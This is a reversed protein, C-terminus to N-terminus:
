KPSLDILNGCLPCPSTERQRDDEELTLEGNCHPCRIEDCAVQEVPLRAERIMGSFFDFLGVLIAGYFLVYTGHGKTSVFSILTLSLGIACIVLGRKKQYAYHRRAKETHDRQLLSHDVASDLDRVLVTAEEQSWGSKVMDAVCQEVTSGSTLRDSIQKKLLTIDADAGTPYVETTQTVKRDRRIKWAFGYVALGCGAVLIVGLIKNAAESSQFLLALGAFGCIVTALVGLLLGLLTDIRRWSGKSGGM